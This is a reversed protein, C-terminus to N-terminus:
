CHTLYRLTLWSHADGATMAIWHAPAATNKCGPCLSIKDRSAVPPRAFPADMMSAPGGSAGKADRQGHREAMKPARGPLPQGSTEGEFAHKTGVTGNQGQGDLYRFYPCDILVNAIRLWSRRDGQRM